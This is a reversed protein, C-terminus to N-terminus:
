RKSEMISDLSLIMLLLIRYFLVVCTVMTVAYALSLSRTVHLKHTSSPIFVRSSYIAPHCNLQINVSKCM